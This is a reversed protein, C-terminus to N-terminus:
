VTHLWYRDIDNTQKVISFVKWLYEECNATSLSTWFCFLADIDFECFCRECGTAGTKVEVVRMEWWSWDSRLKTEKMSERWLNWLVKIASFDKLNRVELLFRMIGTKNSIGDVFCHLLFNKLTALFWCVIIPLVVHTWFFRAPTEMRCLRDCLFFSRRSSPIFVIELESNARYPLRLDVTNLEM